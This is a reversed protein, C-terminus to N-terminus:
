YDLFPILQWQFLFIQHIDISTKFLHAEATALNVLPPNHDRRMKQAQRTLFLQRRCTNQKTKARLKNRHQKLIFPCSNRQVPTYHQKPVLQLRSQPKFTKEDNMSSRHIGKLQCKEDQHAQQRNLMNVM